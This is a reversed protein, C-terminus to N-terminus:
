RSRQMWASSAKTNVPCGLSGLRHVLDHRANSNLVPDDSWRVEHIGEVDTVDRLRGKTVVITRNRKVALAMGTEVLVNPRPQLGAQSESPNTRLSEVLEASEDPSWLAIVAPASQISNIVIDLTHPSGSGSLRVAATFEVPHLRVKTLLDFIEDRFALDHGYIVWVESQNGAGMTAMSSDGALARRRKAERNLFQVAPNARRYFEEGTIRRMRVVEGSPLTQHGYSPQVLTEPILWESVDIDAAILRQLERNFELVHEEWPDEHSLATNSLTVLNNRVREVLELLEEDTM